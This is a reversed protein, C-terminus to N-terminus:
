INCYTAGSKKKIIKNQSLKDNQSHNFIPVKEAWNTRTIDFRVYLAKNKILM